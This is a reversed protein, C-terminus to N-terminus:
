HKVVLLKRNALITQDSALLQLTYFGESLINIDLHGTVNNREFQLVGLANFVRVTVIDTNGSWNVNGTAPNPYLTIERMAQPTKRKASRDDAGACLDSDDFGAGTYATVISRAEYVADGGELPCENAIITFIGTKCKNFTMPLFYLANM